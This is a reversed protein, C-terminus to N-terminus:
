CDYNHERLLRRVAEPGPSNGGWGEVDKDNVEEINWHDGRLSSSNHAPHRLTVECTTPDPDTSVIWTFVYAITSERKRNKRTSKKTEPSVRVSDFGAKTLKDVYEKEADGDSGCGGLAVLATVVPVAVWVHKRGKM